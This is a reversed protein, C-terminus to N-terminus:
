CNTFLCHQTVMHQHVMREKDHHTRISTLSIGVHESWNCSHGSHNPHCTEEPEKLIHTHGTLPSPWLDRCPCTHYPTITSYLWRQTATSFVAETLPLQLYMCVYIHWNSVHAGLPMCRRNSASNVLPLVVPGNHPERRSSFLTTTHVTVMETGRVCEWTDYVAEPVWNWILSRKGRRYM